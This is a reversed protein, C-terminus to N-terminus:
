FGVKIKGKGLAAYTAQSSDMSEISHNLRENRSLLSSYTYGFMIDCRKFM